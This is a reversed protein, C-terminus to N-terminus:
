VDTSAKAGSGYCAAPTVLAGVIPKVASDIVRGAAELVRLLTVTIPGKLTAGPVCASRGTVFGEASAIVQYKLGKPVAGVAVPASSTSLIGRQLEPRLERLWSSDFA